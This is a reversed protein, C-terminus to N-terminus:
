TSTLKMYLSKYGCFQIFDEYLFVHAGLKPLRAVLADPVHNFFSSGDHDLLILVPARNEKAILMPWKGYNHAEFVTDKWFSTLKSPGDILVNKLQLDKYFKCEVYFRQTFKFGLADVASIDGSQSALNKGEALGITARGGSMASRWFIDERTGKSIWLSLSKCTQREFEAGKAKGGGPKMDIIGEKQVIVYNM